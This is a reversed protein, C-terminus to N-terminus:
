AFGVQNLIKCINSPTQFHSMSGCRYLLYLSLIFFAIGFFYFYFM